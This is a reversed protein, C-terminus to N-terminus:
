CTYLYRSDIHIEVDIYIDVKEKEPAPATHLDLHMCCLGRGGSAAASPPGSVLESGGGCRKDCLVHGRPLMHGVRPETCPYNLEIKFLQWPAVCCFPVPSM